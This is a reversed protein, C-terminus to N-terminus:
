DEEYEIATHLEGTVPNVIMCHFVGHWVEMPIAPVPYNPPRLGKEYCMYWTMHDILSRIKLM